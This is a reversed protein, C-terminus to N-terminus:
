QPTELRIFFMKCGMSPSVLHSLLSMVLIYRGLHIGRDGCVFILDSILDTGCRLRAADSSLAWGALSMASYLM